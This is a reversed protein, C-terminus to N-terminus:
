RALDQSLRATNLGNEICFVEAPVATLRRFLWARAFKWDRTVTDNSIELAEAVEPNDLGGFFRLEVVRAQRPSHSALENMAEHLDILNHFRPQLASNGLSMDLSWQGNGRRESERARAFDVLIHRMMQSVFSFFHVRDHWEQPRGHMLRVFAENVLASPQLLHGVREALMRKQAIRYLEDYVIPTLEELAGPTGASWARLMGSLHSRQVACDEM